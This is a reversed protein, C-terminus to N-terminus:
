DDSCTVEGGPADAERDRRLHYAVPGRFLAHTALVGAALLLTGALLLLPPLREPSEWGAGAGFLGGPAVTVAYIAANGAVHAVLAPVLSGARLTWWGFLLGALFAPVAQWPNAHAIAFVLASLVVARRAGYRALFASLFVGRVLLEEAVPAVLAVRAFGVASAGGAFLEEYLTAFWRPVPWLGVLIADLESEVVLLGVTTLLVVGLRGADLGRMPLVEAARRGTRRVAYVIVLGYGALSGAIDLGALDGIWPVPALLATTLVGIAQSLLFLAIATWFSPFCPDRPTAASAPPGIAGTM